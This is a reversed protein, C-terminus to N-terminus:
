VLLIEKYVKPYVYSVVMINEGHGLDYFSYM